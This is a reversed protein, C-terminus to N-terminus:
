EPVIDSKLNFDISIYLTCIYDIARELIWFGNLLL